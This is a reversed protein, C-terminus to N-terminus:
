CRKKIIKDGLTFCVYISFVCAAAPMWMVLMTGLGIHAGDYADALSNLLSINKIATYGYFITMLTALSGGIYLLTVVGKITGFLDSYSYENENETNSNNTSKHSETELSNNIAHSQNKENEDNKNGISELNKDEM